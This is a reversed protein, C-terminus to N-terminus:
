EPDAPASPPPPPLRTVPAFDAAGRSSVRRWLWVCLGVTQVMTAGVLEVDFDQHNALVYADFALLLVCSSWAMVLRVRFLQRDQAMRQAFVAADQALAQRARATAIAEATTRGPQPGAPGFLDDWVRDPTVDAPAADVRRLRRRPGARAEVPRAPAGGTADV